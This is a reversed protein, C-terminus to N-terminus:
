DEKKEGLEGEIKDEIWDLPNDDDGPAATTTPAPTTTPASTTPAPTTTPVATTTPAPTPIPKPGGPDPNVPINLVQGPKILNPNNGIVGKNAAYITDWDEPDNYARSAIDWLTDGHQVTYKSGPKIPEAM